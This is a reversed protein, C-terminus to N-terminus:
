FSLSQFNELFTIQITLPQHRPDTFLSETKQDQEPSLFSQICVTTTKPRVLMSEQYIDLFQVDVKTMFFCKFSPAHSNRVLTPYLDSSALFVNDMIYVLLRYNPAGLWCFHCPWTHTYVFLKVDLTLMCRLEITWGIFSFCCEQRLLKILFSFSHIKKLWQVLISSVLSISLSESFSLHAPFFM